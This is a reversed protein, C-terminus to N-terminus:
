AAAALAPRHARIRKRLQRADPTLQELYHWFEPGHHLVRRHTLEHLIVYDILDWPLQVLFLNLVINGQQDCSGWRSTLRKIALSRYTIGHLAALEALRQGLLRGAQAKLARWCATRAAHQVEDDEPRLSPNHTIIIETSRVSTKVSEVDDSSYFFIRHAKGVHAGHILLDQVPRSQAKVWGRKAQVFAIGTQYPAWSPLTVRVTGDATVSLRVNRSGRRKYIKVAGIGDITFEKYPM